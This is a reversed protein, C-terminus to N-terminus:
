QKKRKNAIKECNERIRKKKLHKEHQERKKEEELLMAQRSAKKTEFKPNKNQRNIRKYESSKHATFINDSLKKEVADNIPDTKSFYEVANTDHAKFYYQTTLYSSFVDMSMSYRKSDMINGMSNFSAEVLPGHFCSLSAMVMKTLNNFKGTKKVANWWEDIRYFTNPDYQQRKM